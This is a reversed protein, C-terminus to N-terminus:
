LNIHVFSYRIFLKYAFVDILTVNKNIGEVDAIFGILIKALGKLVVIIVPSYFVFGLRILSIIFWSKSM